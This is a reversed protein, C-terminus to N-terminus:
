LKVHKAQNKMGPDLIWSVIVLAIAYASALGTVICVCECHHLLYISALGTVNCVCECHHPLYISALGTLTVM